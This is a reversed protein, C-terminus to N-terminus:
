RTSANIRRSWRRRSSSAVDPLGRPMLSPEVQRAVLVDRSVIKDSTRSVDKIFRSKTQAKKEQAAAVAIKVDVPKLSHVKDAGVWAALMKHYANAYSWLLNQIRKGEASDPAATKCHGLGYRLHKADVAGHVEWYEHEGQDKKDLVGLKKLVPVMATFFDLAIREGIVNLAIVQDDLSHNKLLNDNLRICSLTSPFAKVSAPSEKEGLFGHKRMWSVLMAPHNREENAHHKFVKKLGVHGEDCKDARDILTKIFRDSQWWLQRILPALDEKIQIDPLKQFLPGKKIEEGYLRGLEVVWEMSKPM